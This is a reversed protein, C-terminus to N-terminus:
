GRLSGGIRELAAVIAARREAVEADTLTRDPAGFELRLALSRKGPEIQEGEYVDFIRSERLLDGGGERIAERVRAATLSDDVVVAVDEYVAPFSTLDEYIENGEGWASFIPGADLEFAVAAPLDVAERLRPHLEGLWGAPRGDVFLEANRGPHLFPREGRELELPVRLADCLLEVLGKGLYFDAAAAEGRWNPATLSECVITGIRHPERAPAPRAGAFRGDLVGGSAPAPQPLYVRGSEFLAVRGAGRSLNRTAADILGGILNTRMVSHEESLPNHIRVAEADAGRLGLREAADAAVFSWTVAEDLGADRLVDEARRLMRQHAEIGGAGPPRPPLTAPLHEDIGHIRAVEEILDVERTVDFHRDAPVRASLGGEAPEVAFGLRDLYAVAREHPVAMGLLSEMREERLALERPPYAGADVDITGPVLRAGCLEVMLRAAVRQARMTLDPHLQKEFRTSAESRLGLKGSTTLINPGNWTAVEMLVRSTTASVESIQGGMIGAIGSPGERDCVLVADGDFSREVDDLTRMREGERATRIILEGGRVEDLDFAHLPQGSLLMVYNTIDVVNNIPRQGAAILRQKLWLPSPGIQVDTFVRATFRPCLEPVEVTVAAYDGAEGAGRAEADEAWPQAALPNGTIAHVERAVGYVGLCDPRNPTVELELVPDSIPVVASLPTGPEADTALVAIGDADEGVEMEAESLIMGSSEVGRLKAKGLKQGGAMVAGPLAVAVAQGTAVNPAGCVITRPSGAGADVECVSLRDANPHPEASLVRGVVFGDGDPAGAHGIREVETGTMSLREALQEPTSGPECYESLWSWPVHM